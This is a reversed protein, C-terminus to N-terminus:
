ITLKRFPGVVRDLGDATGYATNAQQRLAASEPERAAFVSKSAEIAADAVTRRTEELGDQDIADGLGPRSWAARWEGQHRRRAFRQAPEVRIPRIVRKPSLDHM